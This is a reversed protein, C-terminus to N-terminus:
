VRLGVGIGLEVWGDSCFQRCANGQDTSMNYCRAAEGLDIWIRMGLELCFGFNFHGDLNTHDARLQFYQVTEVL